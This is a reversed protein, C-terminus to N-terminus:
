AFCGDQSLLYLFMVVVAIISISAARRVMGIQRDRMSPRGGPKPEDEAPIRVFRHANLYIAADAAVVLIM